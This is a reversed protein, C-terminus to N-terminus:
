GVTARLKELLAPTAAALVGRPEGDLDEVVGGAEEVLLRGAAEDWRKLGREYFADVRGAAVYALDLAAAGARRVDRIKPLLRLFLEAQERRRDAEYSFGTAVLARDLEPCATVHISEGNLDGLNRGNISAKRANLM